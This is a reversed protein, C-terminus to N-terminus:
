DATHVLQGGVYTRLVRAEAIEQAPATLIDRDLVVLDALHGARLSGADDHGNVHASGATYAALASVLDLRQEPLFVRGDTAEPEMRNVAVHLGALPDPSSVPWDSGAALTAGARLLDGFPYQWSAREPGLFPITLEDMQPEHAAWLPQINAIAGVRAFRAVDQPHVVQLHALHHRTARRGNAARAAEVADLAERVARDGLAHFHVQFDLADLATVYERLAAPDVFSLGSNGTACGCGDLYPSTMAATFNEAIGDQMIKVSGARFRGHSLETRRAVLEPIQDAGRDREWWLAGTVRATLTGARAAALYADSPDPQGNFVGLLADQWGTIGLSHLLQQARLLGALRDAATSPPVLRAVLATAGEQLVGSPSGDAEREIRGDAPDPTDKTLGALELARTNAWAGHHDRNTLYVPRDPVVSDLLQRTPLGGEFSEMSWGSGTIWAQDPNAEAYARVRALYDDVGVTGTLDCAALETGGYVAHVHADQFGPILLKGTLDVVETGPGILERVEDHGVATIREGAVALATARTRAPDGTHVPGHTFVLDAKNM